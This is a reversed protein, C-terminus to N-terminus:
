RGEDSRELSMVTLLVTTALLITAATAGFAYQLAYRIQQEIYIPLVLVRRGGLVAPTTFASVSTTLVLLYGGILGPRSLPLVVRVFTQWPTAGM